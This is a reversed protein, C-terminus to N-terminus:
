GAALLSPNVRVFPDGYVVYARADNHATWLSVLEVPDIPEGLNYQALLGEEESETLERALALYRDNFYELAHGVPKGKLIAEITSQFTAIDRGVGQWVFSYDWTKEVHGIFAMAGQALLRQALQSVFPQPALEEPKQQKLYAFDEIQPTGASYCAFSFFILGDLRANAPLHKGAFFMSEPIAQALPWQAPGPWDQCVLAGQEEIQRPDGRPFGLGHSATFILAPQNNVRTLLKLLAEKTAGAGSVHETRYEVSTGDALPLSKNDIAKSLPEALEAASLGSAEDGPNAPSFVAVRRTRPLNSTLGEHNLLSQVYAAYNAEDDFYLRGVAHEADLGYQFKFPIQSPSGVILLYYPLKQPDTRGPSQGFRKRFQQSTEGKANGEPNYTLVVGDRAAVLPHLADKVNQSIGPAYVVGWRAQKLDLAEVGEILGLKAAKTERITRLEDKVAKTEHQDGAKIWEILEKASMPAILPAGTAGNIGNFHFKKDMLMEKAANARYVSTCFRLWVDGDRDLRGPLPLMQKGIEVTGRWTRSGVVEQYRRYFRSAEMYEEIRSTEAQLLHSESVAQLSSVEKFVAHRRFSGIAIEMKELRLATSESFHRFEGGTQYCCAGTRIVEPVLKVCQDFQEILYKLLQNEPTDYQRRVERCVYRSPDYDQGYHAKFTAPWMIRGRVRGQYVVPYQKTNHNLQRMLRSLTYTIFTEADYQENADLLFYTSRAAKHLDPKLIERFPVHSAPAMLLGVFRRVVAAEDHYTIQEAMRLQTSEVAM